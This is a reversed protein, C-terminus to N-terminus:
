TYLDRDHGNVQVWVGDPDQCRLSFGFAEDVVAEPAFGAATLRASVEALPEDAEFALECAGAQDPPASHIALTGGEAPLEIWNGPRSRAGVELGLARYFRVSADPVASYRIPLLRM